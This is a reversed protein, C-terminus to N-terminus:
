HAVEWPGRFAADGFAFVGGDSAVLWYGDGGATPAIDVVPANLPRGGMSGFFGADGFTFIGGDSAVLWYGRGTPTAVLHSIPANLTESTTTTSSAHFAGISPRDDVSVRLCLPTCPHTRGITRRPQSTM